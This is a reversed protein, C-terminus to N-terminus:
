SIKYPVNLLNQIIVPKINNTCLLIYIYKHIYIYLFKLIFYLFRNIMIKKDTLGIKPTVISKRSTYSLSLNKM